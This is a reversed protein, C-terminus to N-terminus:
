PGVTARARPWILELSPPAVVEDLIQLEPPGAHGMVKLVLHRVIMTAEFGLHYNITPEPGSRDPRGIAMGRLGLGAGPPPENAEYGTWVVVTAPPRDQQGFLEHYLSEHIVQGGRVIPTFQLMM